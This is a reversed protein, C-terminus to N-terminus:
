NETRLDLIGPHPSPTTYASRAHGAAHAMQLRAATEDRHRQLRTEASKEQQMVERLLNDARGITEACQRRLAESRWRREDPAQGRFPDLRKETLQLEALVNHKAALVHILNTMDTQDILELQRRGLAHLQELLNLRAGAIEFLVDTEWLTMGAATTM